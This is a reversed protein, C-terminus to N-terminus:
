DQMISYARGKNDLIVMSKTGIVVKQVKIMSKDVIVETFSPSIVALTHTKKDVIAISDDDAIAIDQVRVNKKAKIWKMNQTTSNRAGVKVKGDHKVAVIYGKTSVDSTFSKSGYIEDFDKHTENMVKM